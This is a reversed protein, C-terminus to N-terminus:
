AKAEAADMADAIMLEIADDAKKIRAPNAVDDATVPCMARIIWGKVKDAEAGLGNAMAALNKLQEITHEDPVPLTVVKDVHRPEPKKAPPKPAQRKPPVHSRSPNAKNKPEWKTDDDADRDTGKEVQPLLLLDRLVYRLSSTMAAALAKDVPRGKEPIIPWPPSSVLMSEGSSHLLLFTRLVHGAIDKYGTSGTWEVEAKMTVLSLGNEALATRAMTFVGEASAYDYGHFKNRGDKGVAQSSAIAGALAAALQGRERTTHTKIEDLGPLTM